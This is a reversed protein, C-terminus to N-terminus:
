FHPHDDTPQVVKFTFRNGTEKNLVTFTANGALVFDLTNGNLVTQSLSTEMM